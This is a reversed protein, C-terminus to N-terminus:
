NGYRCMRYVASTGQPRSYSTNQMTFAGTSSVYVMYPYSNSEPSAQVYEKVIIPNSTSPTDSNTTATATAFFNDFAGGYAFSTPYGNSTTKGSISEWERYGSNSYMYVENYSEGGKLGDLLECANNNYNPAMYDCWEKIGRYTSYTRDSVNKYKPVPAFTKKEIVQRALIEHHEQVTTLHVQESTNGKYRLSEIATQHSVQNIPQASPNTSCPMGNYNRVRYKSFYFCNFLNTFLKFAVYNPKMTVGPVADASMGLIMCYKGKYTGSPAPGKYWYCLPIRIYEDYGFIAETFNWAEHYDFFSSTPTVENFYKDIYALEAGDSNYRGTLVVGIPVTSGTITNKNISPFYNKINSDTLINGSPIKDNVSKIAKATAALSESDSNVASTLQVIGKQSTTGDKVSINNVKNNLEYVTSATAAETNSNNTLVNSLKVIGKQTISADQIDITEPAPCMDYLNDEYKLTISKDESCFAIDGNDLNDTNINSKTNSFILNLLTQTLSKSM